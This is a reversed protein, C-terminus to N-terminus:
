KSFNRDTFHCSKFFPGWVKVTKFCLKLCKKQPPSLSPSQVSVLMGQFPGFSGELIYFYLATWFFKSVAIKDSKKLKKLFQLLSPPNPDFSMIRRVWKIEVDGNEFNLKSFFDSFNFNTKKSNESRSNSYTNKEWWFTSLKGKKVWRGRGRGKREGVVETRLWFCRILSARHSFKEFLSNWFWWFYRFFPWNKKGSKELSRWKRKEETGKWDIIIQEERLFYWLKGLRNKKKLKRNMKSLIWNWDNEQYQIRLKSFIRFNADKKPM